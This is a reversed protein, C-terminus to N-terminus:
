SSHPSSDHPPARAIAQSSRPAAAHAAPAPPSCCGTKSEQPPSNESDRCAPSPSIGAAAPPPSAPLRQGHPARRPSNRPNATTERCTICLSHTPVAPGCLPSHGPVAPNSHPAHDDWASTPSPVSAPTGMLEISVFFLLLLLLFYIVGGVVRLPTPKGPTQSFTKDTM